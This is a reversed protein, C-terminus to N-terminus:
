QQQAPNCIAGAFLVSDDRDSVILFLFPRDVVMHFPPDAPMMACEMDCVVATAASAVTGQENVEVVAKHIVRSVYIRDQPRAAMIHFEAASEDFARRIGMAKLPEELEAPGFEAKFRPLEVRGDRERMARFLHPWQAEQMAAAIGRAPIAIVASCTGRQGYPLRVAEWDANKVYRYSDEGSCMMPVQVNAVNAGDPSLYFPKPRTLAPDFQDRWGGKFYVTNVLVAVTDDDLKDILNTVRGQTRDEVWANIPGPGTLPFAEAMLQQQILNSYGPSIVPGHLWISNAMLLEVEPDAGVLSRFAVRSAAVDDQTALGLARQIESRTEGTAGEMAM